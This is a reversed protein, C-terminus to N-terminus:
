TSSGVPRRQSFESYEAEIAANLRVTHYRPPIEYCKWGSFRLSLQFLLQVVGQLQPVPVFVGKEFSKFM